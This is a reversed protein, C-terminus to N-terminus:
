GWERPPADTFHTKVLVTALALRALMCFSPGVGRQIGNGHLSLAQIASDSYGNSTTWWDWLDTMNTRRISIAYLVLRTATGM